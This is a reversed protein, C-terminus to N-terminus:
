IGSQVQDLIVRRGVELAEYEGPEPMRALFGNSAILQRLSNGRYEDTRLVVYDTPGGAMLQERAQALEEPSTVLTVGYVAVGNSAWGNLVRQRDLRINEAAQRALEAQERQKARWDQLGATGGIIAAIALVIAALGGLLSGVNGWAVLTAWWGPHQAALAAAPVLTILM